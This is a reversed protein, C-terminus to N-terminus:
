WLHPPTVGHYGIVIRPGSGAVQPLLELLSYFQGYEVVLLDCARLDGTLQTRDGHPSVVRALGRLEPHLYSDSEVFVRVEAGRERFFAARAAVQNGIADGFRANHSILAVRM